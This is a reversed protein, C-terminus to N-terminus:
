GEEPRYAALVEGMDEYAGGEDEFGAGGAIQKGDETIVWSWQGADTQFVRGEYVPSAIGVRAFVKGWIEIIPQMEDQSVFSDLQEGNNYLHSLVTQMAAFQDPDVYLLEQLDSRYLDGDWLSLLFSAARRGGGTDSEALLRLRALATLIPACLNPNELAM